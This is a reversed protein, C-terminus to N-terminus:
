ATAGEERPTNVATRYQEADDRPATPVILAGTGVEFGATRATVPRLQLHWHLAPDARRVGATSHVIYNYDAPGALTRLGRLLTGLLRALAEKEADSVAHFSARHRRPVIWAELPREPAWPVEVRFHEDALVTRAGHDPEADPLSCLLCRGQERHYRRQREERVATDPPIDRTAVLQAHPHLLSAGAGAGRNRFLVPTLGPRERVLCATRHVYLEVVAELEHPAMDAPERDHRPSEVLVEQVGRAPHSRELEVGGEAGERLVRGPPNGASDSPDADEEDFAAYRNPVARCRWGPAGPSALEWLIAPLESENGPCFPCAPDRAPPAEVATGPDDGREVPRARRAPAVAIWRGSLPNQRLESM